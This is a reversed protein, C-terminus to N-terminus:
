PWLSGRTRSPVAGSARNDLWANLVHIKLLLEHNTNALDSDQFGRALYRWVPAARDLMPLPCQRMAIATPDAALPTKDRDIIEDPLIGRMADRLLRKRRAWPIPPVSLLFTLVRLDLYPHRWDLPTKSLAPDFGELFSQWISSNFSAIASPHWAHASAFQRRYEQLRDSVGVENILAPNLWVSVDSDVHPQPASRSLGRKISSRWECLSKGRVYNVTARALGIGDCRTILWRLYPKWDFRLANDPGEGFFWVSTINSMDLAVLQEPVACIVSLAPEPTRIDRLYWDRDYCIDDVARHLLKIGLRNAVLSSFQKEEDPITSEFYRTHAVVRSPDGAINLTCVALTSSDLGGSMSIGIRGPSLRDAIALGLIERFHEIYQVPRRYYIPERVDLTWYKQVSMSDRSIVLMHAPPVRKINKYVTRDFDLCFGINLFDAIWFDDIGTDVAAVSAIDDLSDGIHWTDGTYAYFLPRVGLQDRVCILRRRDEDGIVFCYDGRLRDVFRDGWRLNALLCLYADSADGEAMGAGLRLADLMTDRQDLRIRGILWHGDIEAFAPRQGIAVSSATTWVIVAQGTTKILESDTSSGSTNLDPRHRGVAAPDTKFEVRFSM